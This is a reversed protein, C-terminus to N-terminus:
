DRAGRDVHLSTLEGLLRMVESERPV